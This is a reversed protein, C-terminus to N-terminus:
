ERFYRLLKAVKCYTKVVLKEAKVLLAPALRWQVDICVSILLYQMTPSDACELLKWVYGNGRGLLYYEYCVTQVIVWFSNLGNRDFNTSPNSM